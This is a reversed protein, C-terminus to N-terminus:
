LWDRLKRLFLAWVRSPGSVRISSHAIDGSLRFVLGSSGRGQRLAPGGVTSHASSTRDEVRAGEPLRIHCSSHRAQLVIEYEGVPLDLKTYDLLVSSHALNVELKGTVLLDSAIRKSSHTVLIKEGPSLRPHGAGRGALEARPLRAMIGELEGLSSAQEIRKADAEFEEVTIISRVYANTLATTAAEKRDALEGYRQLGGEEPKM